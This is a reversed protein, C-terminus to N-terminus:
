RQVTAMYDLLQQATPPTGRWIRVIEGKRVYVLQPVAGDGTFQVFARSPLQYVQFPAGLKAKYEDVEAPVADFTFGVLTPLSFHDFYTAITPAAEECHPCRPHFMLVLYERNELDLEDPAVDSPKPRVMSGTPDPQRSPEESPILQAVETVASSVDSTDRAMGTAAVALSAVAVVGIVGLQQRTLPRLNTVPTTVALLALILLGFDQLLAQGPSRQVFPGFCGCEQLDGLSWGYAIAASFVAILAASAIGAWRLQWGAILMVGLAIELAPLAIVIPYHLFEPVGYAPLSGLFTWPDTAKFVGAVIMALGLIMGAIRSVRAQLPQQLEQKEQNKPARDRKSKASM